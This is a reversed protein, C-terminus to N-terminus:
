LKGQTKGTVFALFFMKWFSPFRMGSRRSYPNAVTCPGWLGRYGGGQTENPWWIQADRDVIFDYKRGGVDVGQGSRWNGLDKGVPAPSVEVSHVCQSTEPPAVLDPAPEDQPGSVGVVNLGAAPAVGEFAAWVWGGFLGPVSALITGALIKLLFILAPDDPTDDGGGTSPPLPVPEYGCNEPRNGAFTVAVSGPQLYLGHSGNAVFIRPHDSDSKADGIKNVKMVIRRAPDADDEAQPPLTM